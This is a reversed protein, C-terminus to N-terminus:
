PPLPRLFLVIKNVSWSRDYQQQRGGELEKYRCLATSAGPLARKAYMCDEYIVWVRHFMASKINLSACLFFYVATVKYHQYGKINFILLCM